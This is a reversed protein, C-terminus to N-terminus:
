QVLLTSQLSVSRREHSLQQHAAPDPEHRHHHHQDNCYEYELQRHPRRLDSPIVAPVRPHPVGARNGAELDGLAARYQGSIDKQIRQFQTGLDATTAALYYRGGTQSTLLQLANTNVNNTNGFAVCYIAVHNNQALQFLNTVAVLPDPSTNLLSSDDNGDTMAVLYRQEDPNNTGFQNLAANMADWCRTGAYNGQVYRAQIGEISQSLVTKDTIFYNNNSTLSNTVFQPVMYDANFEIIGFLAHPPEEDILLEAAAQMADIAGPVVFMSYTYDLVLFTKLQKSGAASELILPAENSIPVGDEMCVVQLTGPPRVVPNNTAPDTGDRLSFSFDLLYPKSWTHTVGAIALGGLTAYSFNFVLNTSGTGWANIARIPVTFAGGYWPTGSIVGNTPNVTLGLPLDSAGFLAPSDSAQITYSFGPQNETWTATLASTIVPVSSTITLRMVQSDSGYPNAAGITIPFAGDVIPPGSIIGTAPDFSLGAPLM